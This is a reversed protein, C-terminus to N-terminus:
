GSFKRFVSESFVKTLFGLSIALHYKNTPSFKKVFHFKLIKEIDEGTSLRAHTSDYIARCTARTLNNDWVLSQHDHSKLILIPRIQSIRQLNAGKGSGRAM